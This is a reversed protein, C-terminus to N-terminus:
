HAHPPRLASCGPAHPRQLGLGSARHALQRPGPGPGTQHRPQLRLPPRRPHLLLHGGAGVAVAAFDGADQAMVAHSIADQATLDGSDQSTVSHSIAGQATLDGANARPRAPTCAVREAYRLASNFAIILRGAERACSSQAGLVRFGLCMFWGVNDWRAHVCKCTRVHGRRTQNLVDML